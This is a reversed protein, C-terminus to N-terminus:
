SPEEGSPKETITELTVPTRSPDAQMEHVLDPQGHRDGATTPTSSGDSVDRKTAIIGGRYVPTWDLYDRRVEM